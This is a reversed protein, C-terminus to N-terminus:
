PKVKSIRHWLSETDSCNLTLCNLTLSWRMSSAATAGSTMSSSRWMGLLLPNSTRCFIRLVGRSVSM